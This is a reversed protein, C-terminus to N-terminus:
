KANREYPIQIVRWTRKIMSTIYFIKVLIKQNYAMYIKLDQLIM